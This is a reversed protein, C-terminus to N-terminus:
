IAVTNILRVSAKFHAFCINGRLISYILPPLFSPPASNNELRTIHIWLCAFRNEEKLAHQLQQTFSGKKISYILKFALVTNHTCYFFTVVIKRYYPCSKQLINAELCITKKPYRAM